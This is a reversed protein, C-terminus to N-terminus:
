IENIIEQRKVRYEEDSILGKGKLENLITLREAPSREPGKESMIEQRKARYEQDSILGKGKLDNLTTLREAMSREQGSVKPVAPPPSAPAAAATQPAPAAATVVRKAPDLLVWDPRKLDLPEQGAKAVLLWTGQAPRQRSGPTFPNLRRDENRGLEQQVLGLILQLKGGQYFVRGTTAGPRKVFGFLVPNLGVVAFTVDERPGAQQLGKQLQPVLLTLIGETFLPLPEDKQTAKVAVTGLLAGILDADLAVPQDNAPPQADPGADQPVIAVFQDGEEWIVTKGGAAAARAEGVGFTLAVVVIVVLRSWGTITKM